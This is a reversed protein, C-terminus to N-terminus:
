QLLKSNIKIYLPLKIDYGGFCYEFFMGHWLNLPIEASFAQSHMKEEM